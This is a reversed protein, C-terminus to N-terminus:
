PSRLVLLQMAWIMRPRSAARHRMQSMWVGFVGSWSIYGRVLGHIWGVQESAKLKITDAAGAAADAADHAAQKGGTISGLLKSAWGQHAPAEAAEKATATTLVQRCSRAPCPLPDTRHPVASPPTSLCACLHQCAHAPPLMTDILHPAPRESVLCLMCPHATAICLAFLSRM